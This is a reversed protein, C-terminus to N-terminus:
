DAGVESLLSRLEKQEALSKANPSLEVTEVEVPKPEVYKTIYVPVRRELEVFVTDAPQEVFVTDIVPEGAVEVTQLVVREKEPLLFYISGVALLLLVVAYAPM